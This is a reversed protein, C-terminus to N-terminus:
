RMNALGALGADIADQPRGAAHVAAPSAARGNAAIAAKQKLPSISIGAVDDHGQGHAQGHPQGHAQGHRHADGGDGPPPGALGAVLTPHPALVTSCCFPGLAPM